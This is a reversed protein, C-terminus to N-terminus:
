SLKTSFYNYVRQASNATEKTIHRYGSSNVCTLVSWSFVGNTVNTSCKSPLLECFLRRESLQLTVCEPAVPLRKGRHEYVSGRKGLLVLMQNGALHWPPLNVTTGDTPMCSLGSFLWCKLTESGNKPVHM